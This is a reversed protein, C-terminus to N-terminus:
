RNELLEKVANAPRQIVQLVNPRPSHPQLQNCSLPAAPRLSLSAPIRTM